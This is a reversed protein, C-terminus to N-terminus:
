NRESLRQKVKQLLEEQSGYRESFEKPSWHYGIRGQSEEKGDGTRHCVSCLPIADYHSSKKGMAVQGKLKAHHIEVRSEWCCMCGLAAVRSVYAREAATMRMSGM